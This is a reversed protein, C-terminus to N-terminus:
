IGALASSARLFDLFCSPNPLSHGSNQYGTSARDRFHHHCCFIVVVCSPWTQTPIPLMPLLRSARLLPTWTLSLPHSTLNSPCSFSPSQTAPFKPTLRSPHSFTHPFNLCSANKQLLPSPPNPSTLVYNVSWLAFHLIQSNHWPLFNGRLFLDDSTNPTPLPRQPFVTVLLWISQLFLPESILSLPVLPISATECRGRRVAEVELTLAEHSANSSRGWFAQMPATIYVFSLWRKRWGADTKPKSLVSSNSPLLRTPLRKHRQTVQELVFVIATTADGDRSSELVWSSFAGAASIWYKCYNWKSSPVATSSRWVERGVPNGM